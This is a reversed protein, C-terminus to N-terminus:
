VPELLNIEDVYLINGNAQALLGPEFVKEGKRIAQEMSLSGAVRDETAGVPLEVVRRTYPVTRIETKERCSPCLEGYGLRCHFPCGESVQVEDLLDTLGRVATSKATGKEGRILVGGLAPDILNLLLALKMQEQGVIASFPYTHKM